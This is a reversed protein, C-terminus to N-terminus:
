AATELPLHNVIIEAIKRSAQTEWMASHLTDVDYCNVGNTTHRSWDFMTPDEPSPELAARVFIIPATCREIVHHSTLKTASIMQTVTRKFAEISTSEPMLRQEAMKVILKEIFSDNDLSMVEGTIGLSKATSELIQQTQAEDTDRRDQVLQPNAVTDLLVLMSVQQSVAELQVTMEQAITGGFSWGLLQYPGEPQITRIAQIYETAMERVSSHPDEDEELGRAQLAWVPYASPLAETLNQYVTGSGGGPHICFIPNLSGTKRLPLLPDYIWNASTDLKAALQRATPNDFLVRLSLKIALDLRLRSVLRMAVLSDGGISFFSDDIGVSDVNTLTSFLRCLYAERASRPAVYHHSSSTLTPEPLARRDLKGNSTLPLASMEIFHSPTMYDPLYTGLLKQLTVSDSINQSADSMVVYALLSKSGHLDRAIVAVQAVGPVYSLISAEVEGLEIRFGRIKVQEDARGVYDIDAGNSRRALDGTRYMRSGLSGFPNAIFREATLVSRNLYGRALCEGAIYLEGVVGDPM